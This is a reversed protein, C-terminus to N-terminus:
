VAVKFPIGPHPEYNEVRFDEFKLDKMAKKAIVLRPLARPERTLQEKLGAVHDYAAM